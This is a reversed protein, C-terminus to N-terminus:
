VCLSVGARRRGRRRLLHVPSGGSIGILVHTLYSSVLSCARDFGTFILIKKRTDKGNKWGSSLRATWRKGQRSLSTHLHILSRPKGRSFGPRAPTQPLLFAAQELPAPDHTERQCVPRRLYPKERPTRNGGSKGAISFIPSQWCTRKSAIGWFNQYAKAYAM